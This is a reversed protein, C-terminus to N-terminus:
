MGMPKEKAVAPVAWDYKCVENREDFLQLRQGMGRDVGGSRARRRGTVQRASLFLVGPWKQRATVVDVDDADDSGAGDSRVNIDDDADDDGNDDDGLVVYKNHDLVTVAVTNRNYECRLHKGSAHNDPDHAKACLMDYLTAGSSNRSHSSSHGSSSETTVIHELLAATRKSAVVVFLGHRGNRAARLDASWKARANGAPLVAVDTHAHQHLYRARLDPLPNNVFRISVDHCDVWIVNLGLRLVQAVVGLQVALPVLPLPERRATRVAAAHAYREAAAVAAASPHYPDQRQHTDSDRHFFYVPLGRLYAHRYASEDLSAIIFNSLSLLRMNCVWSMMQNVSGSVAATVFVTSTLPAAASDSDRKYGDDSDDASGSRHAVTNVVDRLTLPWGFPQEEARERGSGDMLQPGGGADLGRWGRGHWGSGKGVMTPIMTANGRSIVREAVCGCQVVRSGRSTQRPDAHTAGRTFPTQECPCVDPRLRRTICVNHFVPHKEICHLLKLPAALVGGTSAGSRGLGHRLRGNMLTSSYSKRTSFSLTLYLNILRQLLYAKRSLSLTEDTSVSSHSLLKDHIASPNTLDVERAFDAAARIHAQLAARSQMAQEERATDSKSNSKFATDSNSLLRVVLSTETADIVPRRGAAVARQILWDDHVGAGHGFPPMNVGDDFLRPGNTNWAWVTVDNGDDAGVGLEDDDDDDEVSRSTTHLRGTRLVHRRLEEDYAEDEAETTIGSSPNSDMQHVIDSMGDDPADFRASVLLFDDFTATVRQLSAMFSRPLSIDMSSSLQAARHRRHHRLNSGGGVGCTVLVAVDANSENAREVLSNFLPTGLFNTDVRRDVHVGPESSLLKVLSDSNSTGNSTNPVSPPILVTIRPPPSMLRRYSRLVRRTAFADFVDTDPMIVKRTTESKASTSSLSQSSSKTTSTTTTFVPAIFLEVTLAEVRYSFDGPVSNCKEREVDGGRERIGHKVVGNGDNRELEAHRDVCSSVLSASQNSMFTVYSERVSPGNVSM